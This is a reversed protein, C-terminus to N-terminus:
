RVLLGFGFVLLFFPLDELHCHFFLGILGSTVFLGSFVVFVGCFSFFCVCM